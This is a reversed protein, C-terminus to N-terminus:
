RTCSPATVVVGYSPPHSRRKIRKDQVVEDQKAPLNCKSCFTYSVFFYVMESHHDGAEELLSSTNKDKILVTVYLTAKCRNSQLMIWWSIDLLSVLCPWDNRYHLRLMSSTRDLTCVSARCSLWFICHSWKCSTSATDHSRASQDQWAVAIACFM